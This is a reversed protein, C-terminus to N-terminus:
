YLVAVAEAPVFLRSVYLGVCGRVVAEAVKVPEIVGVMWVLICVNCMAYHSSGAKM